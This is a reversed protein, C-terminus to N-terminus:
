YCQGHSSAEDFDRIGQRENDTEKKSNSLSWSMGKCIKAIECAKPNHWWVELECDIELWGHAKLDKLEQFSIYGWEAMQYDNNLIAYGFFTDAGNFEVIYWDCSAVFFHLYVVKEKLPIEETQYLRPIQSLREKSPVNWM